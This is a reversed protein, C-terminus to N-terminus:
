RAQKLEHLLTEIIADSHGASLSIRLLSQGVPVSPPRIGPALLGAAALQAALQMTRQPDGVIIPLIQSSSAGTSWGQAAVSERVYAALQQVRTRRHPEDRALQMACLSAAAVAPPLATSFVFPRGRNALWHILEATGAVFGGVSGLAKSFTGSRVHVGDEVQMQSAVGRGQEGWVGTAHAEDIMLMAGYDSALQALAALPAFDGDMSFLSDTVILTRRYDAGGSAVASAAASLLERLHDVDAHRYVQVTAGSLRCGDIISAHNRADSFIIDGKSVLATVTAVNAAYGSTFSLAAGAGEFEAVATELEAHVQSRGTVLPSAGSGWGHQVAASAAAQAIRPDAALGLYDNAGFNAMARGDIVVKLPHQTSSRVALRRRLHMADLRQLEDGIWALPGSSM